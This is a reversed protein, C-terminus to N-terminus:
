APWQGNGHFQFALARHNEPLLAEAEVILKTSTKLNREMYVSMLSAAAAFSTVFSSGRTVRTPRMM